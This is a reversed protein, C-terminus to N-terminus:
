PEGAGSKSKVRTKEEKEKDADKISADDKEKEIIATFAAYLDKADAIEDIDFYNDDNTDADKFKEVNIGMKKVDEFSIKNSQFKHIFFNNIENKGINNSM